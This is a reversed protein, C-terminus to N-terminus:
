FQSNSHRLSRTLAGALDKDFHDLTVKDRGVELQFVEGWPVYSQFRVLYVPLGDPTHGLFQTTDEDYGSM